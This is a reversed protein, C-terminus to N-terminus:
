GVKLVVALSPTTGAEGPMSVYPATSEAVTVLGQGSLEDVRSAFGNNWLTGKVTLVIVGGPRVIRILEDLGEEGVHGTTFVGTAIVGAFACNEFPLTSGLAGKHLARYGGKRAAVALMGDSLDMGDVDPYGAIGLWAGLLGTGCGADLVPTAGRPLHRCLLALGISPHQYGAKAMDDDYTTAWRDYIAAVEDADRAGYVAGLQGDHGKDGM